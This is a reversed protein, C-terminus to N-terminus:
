TLTMPIPNPPTASNIVALDVEGHLTGSDCTVHLDETSVATIQMQNTGDVLTLVSTGPADTTWSPPAPWHSVGDPLQAALTVAVGPPIDVM